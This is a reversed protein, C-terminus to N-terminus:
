GGECHCWSAAWRVEKCVREIWDAAGRLSQAVVKTKEQGHMSECESRTQEFSLCAPPVRRAPPLCPSHLRLLLDPWPVPWPPSPQKQLLPPPGRHPALWHMRALLRALVYVM